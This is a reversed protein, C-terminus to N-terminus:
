KNLKVIRKTVSENQWDVKLTYIGASLGALNQLKLSNLGRSSQQAYTTIVRGYNDTISINIKGDGPTIVDFSLVSSFPNILDKVTFPLKNPSLLIIKSYRFVVGEILKVRYYAIGPLAQPDNFAYMFFPGGTGAQVSGIKTFNKGDSSKEVEYIVKDTENVTQWHITAYNSQLSGTTSIFTTKLPESCNNVMVQVTRNALFSCNTDAINGASTAVRLRFVNHHTSSDGIFSPGTATYNYNTGDFTPVITGNSLYGTASWTAGSDTSREWDYYTYNDFYSSVLASLSFGDGYCLNLIPQGPNVGLTPSCSAVGIDDIAWDNGGGGPGNNRISVIMTTESPGTRYTFGKKVWKGTYAMDGTTYYDFGNINFTLNPHVGSSDGPGTPIYGPTLPGKNTSDVSCFHCINRFWASYEYSTSPCLNKVTDLFATDARFSANIVVMYGGTQGANVDAPPNGAIPDAAGTHDGIIDWVNFVRHSAVPDNPNTSYNTLSDSSTNNSMGYLYDAPNGTSFNAYTYNGPVNTSPGRDKISGSGFTGGFESLIANSGVTNACIGYNKYVVANVAPFTINTVSADPNTYLIHGGGMPLVTGYAVANVVVRYNVVIVCSSGFLTPRDTNKIAGGQTGTAGNGLNITVATGSITGPDGDAGDTWQKYIQGENTSIRLSNPQYTTNAPINDIFSANFITNSKVDLTARIELVDGPETTGGNTGKTVNIYSKGYDVSPVKPDTVCINFNWNTGTMVGSNTYVRIYYTNGITLGTGGPNIGTNISTGAICIISTFSGCTGSLLQIRPGASTINLGVGSLSITPYATAAVFKYWVEPSGTAGCDGPISSTGTSNLLTGATSSCSTASTLLTANACLDNAPAPPDTICINFSGNLMPSASAGISYVRVYYTTGVTLGTPTYTSGGSCGVSTFSGCTGSLVQIRASSFNGGVSSLTITPNTTQAVFTYWVDYKDTGSCATAGSAATYTANVVTGATNVCSAGSTLPIANACLDNPPTPLDTICINFSGNTAPIPGNVSFVRVYYTTGPTLGLATTSITAALGCAISTFSGCTGSFVQVRPTNFNAGISSLSILPNVTQAVFKYWVDYVVTGSCGAPDAANVLANVVTGATNVCSTGSTLLQANSCLDNAPAPPDVICINFNGLLLPAVGTSGFVRVFYTTGVSLGTVALSTGNICAVSTLGACTGSLVQLGPSAFGTGISSLTITPNASQAIFTYWVDYKITGTCPAPYPAVATLTASNVTGTTNSCSLSSTIPTANACLDNAPQAFSLQAIM